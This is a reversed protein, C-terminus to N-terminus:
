RKAADRILYYIREAVQRLPPTLEAWIKRNASSAELENKNRYIEAQVWARRALLRQFRARDFTPYKEEWIAALRLNDRFNEGTRWLRHTDNGEFFRYAALPENILLGGGLVIARVWMEWDACHVLGPLFGGHKEYFDRRVVVGPTALDNHDFLSGPNRTPQELFPLRGSLDLLDGKEDVYFSRTFFAATEPNAQSANAIRQYFGSRVFDDGHLIHVLHGRSRELCTNFNAIAGENQDKRHFVARGKGIERVIAEPDDKTSCDDIVEIQMQEAGRDEALVSALTQRLYKACNFTPIMVSWLPRKEGRPVLAIRPPAGDFSPLM